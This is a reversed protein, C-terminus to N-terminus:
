NFQAGDADRISRLYQLVAERHSPDGGNVRSFPPLSRVLYDGYGRKAIRSDLIAVVGKDGDRRLLRGAGQIMPVVAHDRDVEEWGRGPRIADVARRRAVILPDEMYPFPIKDIIVLSLSQGPVDVGEWLSMSGFLSASPNNRFQDILKPLAEDDDGQCIVPTSTSLRKRMEAAAVDRADNSAFLVLARGGSARILAEM